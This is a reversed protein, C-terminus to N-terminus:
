GRAPELWVAEGVHIAGTRVAAGYAGAVKGNRRVVAKLVGADQRATDPDLNIMMCRVDNATVSIAVGPAADGIVLTGGVWDGERFPEADETEIVINPRFRRADVSVGAERCAAAVTALSIVSVFADDFIGNRLAMMEVDGAHRQAIEGRLAEGHLELEAGSPTRVHTPQPDDAGDDRGTPRYLLLEPVRSATLWPFGGRDGVRRFAFRRDGAFGHWGLTASEMPTGAMSKVPYRMLDRVIGLRLM